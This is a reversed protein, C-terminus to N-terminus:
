WGILNSRASESLRRDLVCQDLGRARLYAAQDMLVGFEWVVRLPRARASRQPDLPRQYNLM